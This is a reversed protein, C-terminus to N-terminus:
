SIPSWPPKACIVNGYGLGPLGQRHTYIEGSLPHSVPQLRDHRANYHWFRYGHRALLNWIQEPTGFKKNLECVIIPAAARSLLAAAGQLVLAEAGEVDIWLLEVNTIGQQDLWGDLSIARVDEFPQDPQQAVLSRQLHNSYEYLRMTGIADAIALQHCHVNDGILGRQQNWHVNATLQRFTRAAPEFAHVEGSPGVLQASALAYIGVNAGINLVRMGPAILRRLYFFEAELLPARYLYLEYEEALDPLLLEIQPAVDLPLIAARYRLALRARLQWVLWRCLLAGLPVQGRPYFYRAVYVLQQLFPTHERLRTM